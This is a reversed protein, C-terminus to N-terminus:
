ASYQTRILQSYARARAEIDDTAFLGGIVALLHAGHALLLPANELTIGGIASVPHDLKRAQSLIDVTAGPAGPKTMSSFFRGFAIYDASGAIAKRALELDAHCTVGIIANEGLLKRAEVLADDSQGIHVGDAGARRALQADDNILLPVHADRCLSALNKARRLKDIDTATKDRYQVLVAGGRIAAEVAPMLREDPLLDPDTIAYLGLPVFPSTM